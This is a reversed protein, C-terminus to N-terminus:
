DNGAAQSGYSDSYHLNISYSPCKPVSCNQGTKFQGRQLFVGAVQQGFYSDTIYVSLVSSDVASTKLCTKQLAQGTMQQHVISTTTTDIANNFGFDTSPLRRRQKSLSGERM